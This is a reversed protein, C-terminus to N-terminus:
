DMEPTLGAYQSGLVGWFESGFSEELLLVVNLRPRDFSGSIRRQLGEASDIFETGPESLLRRARAYAEARPLTKYFATYDLHRTVAASVFSFQGNKAIEGVVRENSFVAENISITCYLVVCSITAAGVPWWRHNPSATSLSNELLGNQSLVVLAGFLACIGIVWGVPYADWINIFVEHPFLLYDVAVTNFRSKFEEFFYYEAISGFCFLSWAVLLCLRLGIRHWGASYWRGPLISVWILLPFVALLAVFLDLHFGVGFARLLDVWSVSHPGFKFFLLARLLLFGGLLCVLQFIAVVSRAYPQKKGALPRDTLM